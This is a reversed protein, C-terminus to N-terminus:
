LSMEDGIQTAIVRDPHNGAVALLREVPELFPERGLHFTQHHVPLVFEAGAENAMRWAQEPNCHYHIWPNYAGIPMIALDLGGWARVRRFSGTDATDGGFLVRHGGAEVVYGNYGRWTDTRMRAGWHNVEIGRVTAPGIHASEEWGLETVSAYRRVRLLDATNRASVVATGRNQLRHLSPLDFHDFHAHSLLILDIKPLGAIPLAPAVWRKLGFTVPGIGIGCRDGFIPDTLITFGDLQLLVTSHGLWAAHVGKSGWRRWNPVASPPTIPRSRERSYQQWFAPAGRYIFGGLAVVGAAGM